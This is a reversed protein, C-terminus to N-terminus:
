KACPTKLDNICSFATIARLLSGPQSDIALSEILVLTFSSDVDSKHAESSGKDIWLQRAQLKESELDVSHECLVM